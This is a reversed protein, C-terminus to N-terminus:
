NKKINSDDSFNYKGKTFKAFLTLSSFLVLRLNNMFGHTKDNKGKINPM